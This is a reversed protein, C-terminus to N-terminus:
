EDRIADSNGRRYSYRILQEPHLVPLSKILISHTLLFLAARLLLGRTRGNWLGRGIRMGALEDNLLSGTISVEDCGIFRTQSEPVQTISM